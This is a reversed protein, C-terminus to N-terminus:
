FNMSECNIRVQQTSDDFFVNTLQSVPDFRVPKALELCYRLEM